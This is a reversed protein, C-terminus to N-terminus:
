HIKQRALVCCSCSIDVNEISISTLPVRLLLLDALGGSGRFVRVGLETAARYGEFGIRSVIIAEVGYRNTRLVVEGIRSVGSGRSGLERREVVIGKALDVVAYESADAPSSIENDRLLVVALM